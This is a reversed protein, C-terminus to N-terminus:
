MSASNYKVINKLHVNRNMQIGSNPDALTVTNFQKKIVKLPGVFYPELKTRSFNRVLVLDGERIRKGENLSNKEERRAAWYKNANKVNEAAELTWRYHNIFKELLVEDSSKNIDKTPRAAIDFPQQDERGYVLEFSSHKTVKNKTTRLAWLASPLVEDWDKNKSGLLRLLKGIEKNRNETLGNSEPHYTSIFKVYVDYLDLFIKTMDSTFQVGNDTTIVQPVGHRAFVNILFKIVDQSTINETPEAEVWKTFYDVVVMIYQNNNKTKILPGIIDLGLHIFPGEVKTPINETPEPYPQSRNLQCKDCSQVVRKIDMVMNNWYFSKRLRQYTKYYGEHGIKHAELILKVRETQDTILKRYDNGDVFYDEGDITVFKENIFDKITKSLLEEEEKSTLKTALVVSDDRKKMRSLADALVNKKGMQYQIEVGLTSVTLCWRAQRANNPEKNKFFSILPKHDTIVVTKNPNGLIYSKLKTICYILAAGELDTIGYNKEAKSLSRSIYHVPHEKKTELDEQLLVGGIGEYSADTRIIFRQNFSPYKLIPANILKEKLLDFSQQHENNWKYKVNKRLLKCLPASIQAYKDIFNRYYGVAGLFSRLEHVDVPAVWEKIAKIKSDQPSLGKVSAKHGLVEVETQMFACKEINIKLKHQRFVELVQRIHSIHEEISKSYILIDDIFNFVFKGIFPFLIRNMERQFTAPAGTLGFPMVKFQYNGFKTTFTTIEVSEEDMLIQHYGSYLDMTTFIQAGDLSDFIEDIYPLSYSDKVTLDNVKRYDICLRWKGNKKPVLVIPSSWESCSPEILKKNILKILEEKLIDSKFKVLRYCRQKVPKAGPILNIKHPPLDSPTLEESSTAVIELNEELIKIIEDKYKENLTNLFIEHHIYQKPSLGEIKKLDNKKSDEDLAKIMCLLKEEDEYDNNIPAIVDIVGEPTIQCLSYLIPHIFLNYDIQTKLNILIDYFPDEKEVIRCNVMLVLNNIKVPVRIIYGESYDDNKTALRIRGRSIDIPEYESPLKDLFQQTIISLNSCSDILAKGSVGEVTVDVMAIDEECPENGKSKYTHDINNVVVTTASVNDLVGSINSQDRDLKIGQSVKYRLKPAADLLQGFTINCHASNLDKLIDYEEEGSQMKIKRSVRSSKNEKQTDKDKSILVKTLDIVKNNEKVISKNNDNNEKMLNKNKRKDNNVNNIIVEDNVLSNNNINDNSNDNSHNNSYNTNSNSARENDRIQREIEKEKEIRPQALISPKIQKVIKNNINNEKIEREKQKRLAPTIIPKPNEKLSKHIRKEASGEDNNVDYIKRKSAGVLYDVKKKNVVRKNAPTEEINSLRSNKIEKQYKLSAAKNLIPSSRIGNSM